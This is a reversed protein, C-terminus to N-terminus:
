LLKLPVLLLCHCVVIIDSVVSSSSLTGLDQTTIDDHGTETHHDNTEQGTSRGKNDEAIDHAPDILSKNNLPLDSLAIM